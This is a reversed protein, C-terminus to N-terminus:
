AFQISEKRCMPYLEALREALKRWEYAVGHHNGVPFLHRFILTTEEATLLPTPGYARGISLLTINIDSLRSARLGTFQVYHQRMADLTSHWHATAEGDNWGHWPVNDHHLSMAMKCLSELVERRM